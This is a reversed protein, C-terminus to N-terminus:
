AAGAGAACRPCLGELLVHAQEVEFGEQPLTVDVEHGESPVRQHAVLPSTIQMLVTPGHIRHCM